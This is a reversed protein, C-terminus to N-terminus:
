RHLWKRLVEVVQATHQPGRPLTKAQLPQHGCEPCAAFFDGTSLVDSRATVTKSWHCDSCSYHIPPPPLPM